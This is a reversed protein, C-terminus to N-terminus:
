NGKEIVFVFEPLDGLVLYRFGPKYYMKSKIFEVLPGKGESIPAEFWDVNVMTISNGGGFCYGEILREPLRYVRVFVRADPPMMAM